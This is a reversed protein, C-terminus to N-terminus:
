EGKGTEKTDNQALQLSLRTKRLESTILEEWEKQKAKNLSHNTEEDYLLQMAQYEAKKQNFLDVIQNDFSTTYTYNEFENQIKEAFLQAINFHMQEHKLLSECQKHRRSWSSNKDFSAYVEFEFDDPGYFKYNYRIEAFSEADYKSTDNVPGTFDDWSLLQSDTWRINQQGYTSTALFCILATILFLRMLRGSYSKYINPIFPVLFASQRENQM